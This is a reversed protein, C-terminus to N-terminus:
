EWLQVSGLYPQNTRGGVRKPKSGSLDAHVARSANIMCGCGTRASLQAAGPGPISSPIVGYGINAEGPRGPDSSGAKTNQTNPLVDPRPALTVGVELLLTQRSDWLTWPFM